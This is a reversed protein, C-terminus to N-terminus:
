ALRQAYARAIGIAQEPTSNSPAWAGIQVFTSNQVFLIMYLKLSALQGSSYNYNLLVSNSGIGPSIASPVSRGVHSRYIYGLMGDANGSSNFTGAYAWAEYITNPHAAIFSGTPLGNNSLEEFQPNGVVSDYSALAGPGYYFPTLYRIAVLQSYNLSSNVIYSLNLMYRSDPSINVSKASTNAYYTPPAFSTTPAMTSTSTTSTPKGSSLYFYAGAAVVLIIAVAAAIPVYNTKKEEVGFVDEDAMRVDELAQRRSHRSM